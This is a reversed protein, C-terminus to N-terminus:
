VPRVCLIPSTCSPVATISQISCSCSRPMVMVEAAVVQSHRVDLDVNNICGAVHIERRFHLPRQAHQIARHRHEIGHGAHLRLRFGNPPLGVFILDRADTEDVFHVAHARIEVM